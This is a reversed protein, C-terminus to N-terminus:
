TAAAPDLYARGIPDAPRPIGVGETHQKLKAVCGIPAAGGALPRVGEAALQALEGGWRILAAVTPVTWGGPPGEFREVVALAEALTGGAARVEVVRGFAAPFALALAEGDPVRWGPAVVEGRCPPFARRVAGATWARGGPGAIRGRNLRAAVVRPPWGERRLRGALALAQDPAAM